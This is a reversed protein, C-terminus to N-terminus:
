EDVSLPQLPRVARWCVALADHLSPSIRGALLAACLANWIGTVGLWVEGGMERELIAAAWGEVQRSRSGIRDLRAILGPRDIWTDVDKGTVAFVLSANLRTWLDRLARKEVSSLSIGASGDFSFRRDPAWELTDDASQRVAAAFRAIEDRMLSRVAAELPDLRRVLEADALPTGSMPTRGVQRQHEIGQDTSTRWSAYM